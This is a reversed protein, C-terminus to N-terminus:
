LYELLGETFQESVGKDFSTADHFLILDLPHFLFIIPM